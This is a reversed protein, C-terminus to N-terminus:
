AKLDIMTMDTVELVDKRNWLPTQGNTDMYTTKGAVKVEAYLERLFDLHLSCEGGSTTIGNIFPFYARIEEMIQEANLNRIKPSAGNQCTKLCTDCQCCKEYDYVVKGNEMSLAGAPCAKVCAGCGRCLHITEPNHCYLCNQNCGQLFIATRNGYGDVSSFPIIKNVPATIM